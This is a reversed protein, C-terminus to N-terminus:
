IAYKSVISNRDPLAQFEDQKKCFSVKSHKNAYGRKHRRYVFLVAIILVVFVFAATGLIIPVPGNNGATRIESKDGLRNMLPHEVTINEALNRMHDLGDGSTTDSIFDDFIVVIGLVHCFYYGILWKISYISNKWSLMASLLPAVM